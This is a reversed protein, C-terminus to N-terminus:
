RTRGAGATVAATGMSVVHTVPIDLKRRAQSPLHRKLWQSVGAPFTSIIVRVYPPQRRGIEERIALLPDASGVLSDIVDLGEARLRSSADLARQRAVEGDEDDVRTLVHNIPTAPVRLLFEAEADQEATRHLEAILEPSAATQHAVILYRAM